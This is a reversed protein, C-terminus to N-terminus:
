ATAASVGASAQGRISAALTARDPKGNPTRAISPLVFVAKPAGTGLRQSAFQQLAQASVSSGERLSVACIPIDQHVPDRLALAAADLVAPHEALCHEVEAPHINIGNFIMMDDTRGLHVFRGDETMSCMDQPYFWGDRFHRRTAQADDLYGDPMHATRVRLSGPTGFAVPQDDPGVVQMEVGPLPRGISGRLVPQEGAESLSLLGLENTGYSVVFRPCLRERVRARLSDSVTSGGAGLLRLRRLGGPTKEQQRLLGHLSVVAASLVTVESALVESMLQPSQHDFLRLVAGAALAAFAQRRATTFEIPSLTAVQDDPGLGYAAIRTEILGIENDHSAQFLKPTGTTGSGILLAFPHTDDAPERGPVPGPAEQPTLRVVPLGPLVRDDLDTVLCDAQLQSGLLATMPEPMSRRLGILTAGLRAIALSALLVTADNAGILAVRQGPAIGHLALQRASTEVAKALSAFDIRRGRHIM